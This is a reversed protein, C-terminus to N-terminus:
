EYPKWNIARLLHEKAANVRRIYTYLNVVNSHESIKEFSKSRVRTDLGYTRLEDTGDWLEVCGISIRKVKREWHSKMHYRVDPCDCLNILVQMARLQLIPSNTHQCLSVLIKTLSYCIEKARWKSRTTLTTYQMLGVASIKVKITGNLYPKLVFTIDYIDALEKGISHCCLKAMCDMASSVIRSDEHNFLALMVQFANAKLPPEPDWDTLHMLTELLLLVIGVHDNRIMKLLNEIIDDEKMIAECCCLHRSLTCLTHGAAYRVEKRGRMLLWMLNSIIVPRTFIHKRGQYYNALHSLINCVKEMIVPNRELMLDALRHAVHLDILFMANESIQVQDLVSHIAQLQILPDPSHLDRVLLRLGTRGFGLTARTIDVHPAFLSPQMSELRQAPPRETHPDYKKVQMARDVAANIVRPNVACTLQLYSNKHPCFM